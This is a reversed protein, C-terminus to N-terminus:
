VTALILCLFELDLIWMNIILYDIYNYFDCINFTLTEKMVFYFAIVNSLGMGEKHQDKQKLYLQYLGQFFPFFYLTKYNM